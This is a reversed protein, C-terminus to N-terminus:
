QEDGCLEAQWAVDWVVDAVDRSPQLRQPVSTFLYKPRGAVTLHSGVHPSATYGSKARCTLNESSGTCGPVIFMGRGLGERVLTRVGYAEAWTVPDDLLLITM